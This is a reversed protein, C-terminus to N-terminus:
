QQCHQVGGELEEVEESSSDAPGDLQIIDALADNYNYDKLLAM